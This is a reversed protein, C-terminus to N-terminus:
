WPINALRAHEFVSDDLDDPEIGLVRSLFIMEATIAIERNRAVRFGHGEGEFIFLATPRGREALADFMMRAQEPPVVRDDEGQFFIVPQKLDDVRLIPSREEFLERPVLRDLYSSEFKHTSAALIRLDGIGYHSSGAKFIRSTTLARLTTYGGASGGKIAVRDGDVLSQNILYEVGAECDQVDVVGWNGELRQRYERGHGTSGGYNVDLVAWGRTTYCQVGLALVNDRRSTPGGHSLVLLPPLEGDPPSAKPNVPPYFYAHATLGNATPYEIPKGASIWEPDLPAAISTQIVKIQRSKTEMEVAQVSKTSTGALFVASSGTAHVSGYSCFSDDITRIIGLKLDVTVLESVGDMIRCAVVFRDDIPDFSRLGFIWAPGGYEGSEEVAIQQASTESYLYLNWFGSHDSLFLLCGNPTWRPQMISEQDGGAIVRPNEVMGDTHMSALYLLSGDWPMNPHDWAVFALEKAEPSIAPSSYFDHGDHVAKVDGCDISVSVLENKVSGNPLHMERVALLRERYADFQLDAFRETDETKTVQRISNRDHLSIEYINQDKANVFWLRHEMVCYSGGGYEHVRSRASFPSQLLDETIDGHKRVLVARGADQPRNEIWYTTDNCYRLEGMDVSAEAVQKPNLPSHWAGYKQQKM